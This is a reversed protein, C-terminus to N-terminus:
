DVSIVRILAEAASDGAAVAGEFWGSDVPAYDSSAFAIRGQPEAWLSWDLLHESGRVPTVWAGASYPDANWDHWRLDSAEANPLLRRVAAEGDGRRLADIFGAPAFGTVAVAGDPGARDCWLWQIDRGGGTVLTGPAVGQARAVIKVSRCIHGTAVAHRRLPSLEPIFSVRPLAGIGIAVVAGRGVFCRGDAARAEVRDDLSRVAVIDTEVYVERAAAEIVRAVLRSAGGAITSGLASLMGDLSGDGYGCFRLLDEASGAAPDGGGSILWWAELEEAATPSTRAIANRYDEFSLHTFSDGDTVLRHCDRAVAELAERADPGAKSQRHTLPPRVVTEVGYARAIARIRTQWPAIWAGGLEVTSRAGDPDTVSFARGGFRSRAEILCVSLGAAHLRASASAGAFGGGIVLMDHM